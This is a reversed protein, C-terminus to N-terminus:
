FRCICSAYRPYLIPSVVQSQFLVDYVGGVGLFLPFILLASNGLSYTTAYILGVIVLKGYEPQFGIHHLAYFLATLLIGPVLGFARAFLTRQFAYFFVLEFCLALMM